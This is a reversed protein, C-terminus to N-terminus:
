VSPHPGHQRVGIPAAYRSCFLQWASSDRAPTIFASCNLTEISLTVSPVEVVIMKASNAPRGSRHIRPTLCVDIAATKPVPAPKWSNLQPPHQAHKSLENWCNSPDLKKTGPPGANGAWM